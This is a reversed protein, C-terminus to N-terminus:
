GMKAEGRGADLLEAYPQPSGCGTLLLVIILLHKM